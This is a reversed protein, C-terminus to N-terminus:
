WSSLGEEMPGSSVFGTIYFCVTDPLHNRWDRKGILSWPLQFSLRALTCGSRDHQLVMCFLKWGRAKSYVHVMSAEKAKTGASSKSSEGLGATFFLNGWLPVCMTGKFSPLKGNVDEVLSRNEKSCLCASTKVTNKCCLMERTLRDLGKDVLWMWVPLPCYSYSM